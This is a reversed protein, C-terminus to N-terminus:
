KKKFQGVMEVIKDYGVMAGICNAIVMLFIFAINNGTCPVDNIMYYVLTGCGGVVAAVFLVVLDTVYQVNQKDLFTKVAQTVLGTVASFVSVLLLFVDGTM